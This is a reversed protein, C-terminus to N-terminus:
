YSKMWGRLYAIVVTFFLPFGFAIVELMTLSPRILTVAALIILVGVILMWVLAVSLIVGAKKAISNTTFYRSWLVFGLRNAGVVAVGWVLGVLGAVICSILTTNMPEVVMVGVHSPKSAVLAVRPLRAEPSSVAM